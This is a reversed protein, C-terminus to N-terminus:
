GFIFHRQTPLIKAHKSSNDRAFLPQLNTFHFCRRQQEPKSLDFSACPEKHDLHWCTGHNNWNMGRKFQKQIHLRLHDLSCGLLKLTPASKVQGKLVRYIRTRLLRSIHYNSKAAKGRLYQLRSALILGSGDPNIRWKLMEPHNSWHTSEDGIQIAHHDALFAERQLTAIYRDRKWIPTPERKPKAHKTAPVVPLKARLRYSKFWKRLKEFPEGVEVAILAFGCGDMYLARIKRETEPSPQWTRSFSNHAGACACSCFKV